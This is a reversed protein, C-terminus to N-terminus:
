VTFRGIMERLHKAVANLKDTSKRIAASGKSIDESAQSVEGIDQAVEGAVTSVQAVNETVEQIGISAQSINEAIEGTTASQEEVATVISVVIANVEGIVKTIQQIQGVTAETSNQISDIRSKIEGTAEATQKALEKIENAVVAFGKGAEGARAAEITANLALLNTQESIETITETVKGIENAATGLEDVKESASGAEEVATKSIAQAKETSKVIGNITSTMEDTATSVLAINTAAEETAAAVTAMNASMEEAAAAVSNTREATNEASETFDDATTGLENSSDLLTASSSSIDKVMESLKRTMEGMNLVMQGIEDGTKPKLDGTLDGGAVVNIFHNADDLPTIITRQLLLWAVAIIFVLIGALWLVINMRARAVAKNAETLSSIIEFAGHIEGTKWGEKTGGTVDPSGKPDGHCFLCESTLRIPKFYRIQNKEIIIKESLNKNKLEALVQQEIATPANKQNRPSMKPVRFTYGAERAKDEAVQIATIVPVAEIVLSPDLQDFPKIVGSKLKKAMRDRTAEAMLVIGSSKSIIAHEAGRRIDNVRQWALISGVLMPGLIVLFLVKWKISLNKM